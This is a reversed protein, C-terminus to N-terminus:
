LPSQDTPSTWTDEEASCKQLGEKKLFLSFLPSRSRLSPPFSASSSSSGYLPFSPSPRRRRCMEEMAEKGGGGVRGKGVVYSPPPSEAVVYILLLLLPFPLFRGFISGWSLFPFAGTGTEQPKTERVPSLLPSQPLTRGLRPVGYGFKCLSSFKKRWRRAPSAWNRCPCLSGKEKM